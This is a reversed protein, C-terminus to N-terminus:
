SQDPELESSSPGPPIEVSAPLPMMQFDVEIMLQNLDMTAADIQTVLNKLRDSTDPRFEFVLRREATVQFRGPIDGHMMWPDHVARNRERALNDTYGIFKNLKPLVPSDPLKLRVLSMLAQLRRNLSQLHATICAGIEHNVCALHWISYDATHELQAWAEAVMGIAQYIEPTAGTTIWPIPHESNSL